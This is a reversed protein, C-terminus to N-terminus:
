RSSSATKFIEHHVRDGPRVGHRQAAGGAIELVAFVDGESAIIRDSLPETQAEIRHIIGDARIFIMDLPIYTHRMWMTIEQPRGYPFLMGETDGMKTRFMLGKAKEADTAALEISFAVSGGSAKEIRLEQTATRAVAVRSWSMATMLALGSFVFLAAISAARRSFDNPV